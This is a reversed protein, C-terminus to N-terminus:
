EDHVGVNDFEAVKVKRIGYVILKGDEIAYEHSDFKEKPKTEEKPESSYKWSRGRFMNSMYQVPCDSTDSPKSDLIVQAASVRKKQYMQTKMNRMLIDLTRGSSFYHGNGYECWGVYDSKYNRCFKVIIM